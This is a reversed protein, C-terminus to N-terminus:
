RTLVEVGTPGVWVTHEAQAVAAGTPEVLPPYGMLRRQRALTALTTEVEERPLDLLQRRAFPLGQLGRLVELVRPSVGDGAASGDQEVLRFVQPQGREVVRGAGTTAFPEIAVAMGETLVATSGEPVNPIPPACHVRWRGVGHGCLNSVPRLRRARITAEIIAALHVVPVGAAAADIAAALAAEAAEVLPRNTPVDGVNVTVATDVVWGEVHVGVDLKALDGPAYTTEEGPAPCYHAAIHNRSSQVPFAPCGGRRRIEEEVAECVESLRAGPRVRAAGYDRAAGAIRGAERLCALADSSM